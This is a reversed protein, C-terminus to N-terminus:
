LNDFLDFDHPLAARFLAWNHRSLDPFTIAVPPCTVLGTSDGRPRRAGFFNSPSGIPPAPKVYTIGGVDFDIDVVPGKPADEGFEGRILKTMFQDAFGNWAERLKEFSTFPRELKIPVYEIPWLAYADVGDGHYYCGAVVVADIEDTDNRVRHAVLRTLENHNLATYGTNVVFLVTCTAEPFEARSQKLQKRAKAIATKIPGEIIRDYRIKSEPPLQTRDLVVVPRHAAYESFLAALKEQREPKGLGEDDLGKLEILAEGLRYDAGPQKRRDADPHARTGGAAALVTDLDKETLPRVRFHDMM